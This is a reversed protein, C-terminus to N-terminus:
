NPSFEAAIRGRQVECVQNVLELADSLFGRFWNARPVGARRRLSGSVSGTVHNINSAPSYLGAEYRFPELPLM